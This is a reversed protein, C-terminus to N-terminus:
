GTSFMGSAHQDVIFLDKGLKGIIFGLNFQGIIKMEKFLKKEFTRELEDEAANESMGPRDSAFADPDVTTMSAAAFANNPPQSSMKRKKLEQAAKLNILRIKELDIELSPGKANGIGDENLLPVVKRFKEENNVDIASTTCQESIQLCNGVDMINERDTSPLSIPQIVSQPEKSTENECSSDLVVVEERVESTSGDTGNYGGSGINIDVKEHCGIGTSTRSKRKRKHSDEADLQGIPVV